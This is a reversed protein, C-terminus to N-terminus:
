DSVFEVRRNVARGARSKNSVLPESEGMGATSLRDASIGAGALYKMVSSARRESLKLNYAEPGTSDTHGVVVVDQQDHEKLLDAVRDLKGKADARIKASDFDFNINTIIAVVVPCGKEDVEEGKPTGPCKDAYDYVGDGDEDSPCGFKDTDVGKPTGPCRDLYDPVADGDSNSPCGNADVTHYAMKPTGPCKDKDDTVGDGDSDKSMMTDGTQCMAQGLVAGTAAGFIGGGIGGDAGVGAAAGAIAGGVICWSDSDDEMGTSACGALFLPVIVSAALLRLYRM